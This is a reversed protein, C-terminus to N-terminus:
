NLQIVRVPQTLPVLGNELIISQGKTKILFSIFATNIRSILDTCYLYVSRIYPYTKQYVLGQHLQRFEDRKGNAFIRSIRLPKVSPDLSDQNGKSLWSLNSIGIANKNKRIMDLMQASTSCIQATKSYELAGLISDKVFDYTGSNQRQIFLKFKNDSGKMKDIVAKNQEEPDKGGELIVKLESWEKYEGSFIKKLDESTVREVPNEPNVIFALADTALVYKRIDQNNQKIFDEEEKSLIRTVMCLAAKGNVLDAICNKTPSYYTYIKREPQLREYDGSIITMLPQLNEDVAITDVPNPNQSITEKKKSLFDCSQFFLFSFLVSYLFIRSFQINYKNNSTKM